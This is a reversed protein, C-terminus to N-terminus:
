VYYFGWTGSLTGYSTLDVTITNTLFTVADPIIQKQNNDAITVCLTYPTSLARNHAITLIGAALDGNVFPGRVGAGYQFSPAAGAGNSTLVQGATGIAVQSFSTTSDAYPILYQTWSSKGTGGDAVALDTIGSISGGTISVNNAAQTAISGLVVTDLGFTDAATMKVFSVSVYSLGALSTLSAHAAQATDTLTFTPYTGTVSVHTSNAISVVQDPASNTVTFAPYTGTASIGTGSAISVTQDPATNTIQQGAVSIGTGATAAVHSNTVAGSLQLVTVTQVGNTLNGSLSINPVSLTDTTDTYIFTAEGGLNTTGHYQVSGAVGGLSLGTGIDVFSVGDNALQWHDTTDNYKIAPLFPDSNNAELTGRFNAARIDAFGSDAANRIDIITPTLDDVKIKASNLPNVNNMQFTESTTGTDTNQTHKLSVASTINTNTQNYTDLTSKNAHTHDNNVASQLETVTVTDVGNTIDGQVNIDLLTLNVYASDASNRLELNPAVGKLYPGTIGNIYFTANSTGLDTNQAHGSPLTAEITDLRDKVTAEVGQPNTGLTACIAIIEANVATHQTSHAPSSLTAGPTVFAPISTPYSAM